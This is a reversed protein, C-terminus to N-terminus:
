RLEQQWRGAAAAQHEGDVSHRSDYCAVPLRHCGLGMHPDGMAGPGVTVAISTLRRSTGM